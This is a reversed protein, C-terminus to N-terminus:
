VIRRLAKRVPAHNKGGGAGSAISSVDDPSDAPASGGGDRGRLGGGTVKGLESDDLEAAADKNKNASRASNPKTKM